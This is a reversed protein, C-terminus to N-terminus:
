DNNKIGKKISIDIDAPKWYFKGDKYGVNIIAMSIFGIVSILIILRTFRKNKDTGLIFTFLWKLFEIM